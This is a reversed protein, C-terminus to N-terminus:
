FILTPCISLCLFLFFPRRVLSPVVQIMSSPLLNPLESAPKVRSNGTPWVTERLHKIPYFEDNILTKWYGLQQGQARHHGHIELLLFVLSVSNHDSHRPLVDCFDHTWFGAENRPNRSSSSSCSPCRWPECTYTSLLLLISDLLGNYPQIAFCLVMPPDLRCLKKTYGYLKWHRPRQQKPVTPCQIM